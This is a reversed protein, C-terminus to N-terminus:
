RTAAKRVLEAIRRKGLRKSQGSSCLHAQPHLVDDLARVLGAIIQDETWGDPNHTPDLGGHEPSAWAKGAIQLIWDLVEASTTCTDLDVEYRYPWVPYLVRTTPDLRWPGWEHRRRPQDALESLRQFEIM